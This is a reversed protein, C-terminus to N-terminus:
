TLQRIRTGSERGGKDEKMGTKEGEEVPEKSGTVWGGGRGWGGWCEPGWAGGEVGGAHRRGVACDGTVEGGEDVAKGRGRGSPLGGHVRLAGM